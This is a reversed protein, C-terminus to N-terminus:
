TYFDAEAWDHREHSYTPFYPTALDSESQLIVPYLTHSKAHQIILALICVCV